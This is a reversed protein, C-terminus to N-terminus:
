ENLEGFIERVQTLSLEQVDKVDPPLEVRAVSFWKELQEELNAMAQYGAADNDLALIVRSGLTAMLRVQAASCSAGLLAVTATIGCQHLWVCDLPGEVVVVYGNKNQYRQAGFLHKSKEFGPSYLYKRTQAGDVVERRCVGVLDGDRSLLPIVIAPVSADYRFGWAKITAPTFGRDLIYRSTRSADQRSYDDYFVSTNVRGRDKVLPTLADLLQDSTVSAGNLLLWRHATNHDVNQIKRVLDLLRGQGCGKFCIWIAEDMDVPRVSFGPRTAEHEHNGFPCRCVFRDGLEDVVDIGLGELIQGVDLM